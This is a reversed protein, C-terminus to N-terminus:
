LEKVYSDSYKNRLKKKLRDAETETAFGGVYLQYYKGSERIDANYGEKSRFLM